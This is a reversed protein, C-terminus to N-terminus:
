GTKQDSHSLTTIGPGSHALVPAIQGSEPAIEETMFWLAYKKFRPHQLVKEAMAVTMGNTGSEYSCLTAYKIGTLESFERRTLRESERILTIKESTGTSM